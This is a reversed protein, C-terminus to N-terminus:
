NSANMKQIYKAIWRDAKEQVDDMQKPTINLSIFHVFEWMDLYSPSWSRALDVRADDHTPPALHDLPFHKAYDDRSFLFTSRRFKQVWTRRELIQAKVENPTCYECAEDLSTMFELRFQRPVFEEYFQLACFELAHLSEIALVRQAAYVTRLFEDTADANASKCQSLAGAVKVRFANLAEQRMVDRLAFIREKSHMKRDADDLPAINIMAGLGQSELKKKLEEHEAAEIALLQVETPRMDTKGLNGIFGLFFMYADSIPMVKPLAVGQLYLIWKSPHVGTELRPAYLLALLSKHLTEGLIQDYLAPSIPAVVDLRRCPLKMADMENAFLRASLSYFRDSVASASRDCRLIPNINDRRKKEMQAAGEIQHALASAHAPDAPNLTNDTLMGGHVAVMAKASNKTLEEFASNDDPMGLAARLEKSPRDIIVEVGQEHLERIKAARAENTNATLRLDPLEELMGSATLQELLANAMTRVNANDLPNALTGGAAAAAKEQFEMLDHINGAATNRESFIRNLEDATTVSQLQEALEANGGISQAMQLATWLTRDAAADNAIRMGNQAVHADYLDVLKMKGAKNPDIDGSTSTAQVLALEAPSLEEVVGSASVSGQAGFVKAVTSISELAPAEGDDDLAMDNSKANDSFGVASM